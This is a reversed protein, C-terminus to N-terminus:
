IGLSKGFRLVHQARDTLKHRVEVGEYRKLVLGGIALKRIHDSTNNYPMKLETAIEEVSLESNTALLYLIDLRHHNAFAKVIRELKRTQTAM